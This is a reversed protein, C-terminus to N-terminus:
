LIAESAKPIRSRRRMQSVLEAQLEVPYEAPLALLSEKGRGEFKGRVYQILQSSGNFGGEVLSEGVKNAVRVIILAAITAATLTIPEM